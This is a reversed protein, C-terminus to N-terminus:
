KALRILPSDYFFLYGNNMETSNTLNTFSSLKSKRHRSLPSLRANLIHFHQIRPM